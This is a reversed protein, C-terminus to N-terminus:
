QEMKNLESWYFKWASRRTGRDLTLGQKAKFKDWSDHWLRRKCSRTLLDGDTPKQSVYVNYKNESM